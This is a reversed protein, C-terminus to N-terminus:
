INDPSINKVAIAQTILLNKKLMDNHPPVIFTINAYEERSNEKFLIFVVKQLHNTPTRYSFGIDYINSFGAKFYESSVSFPHGDDGDKAYFHLEGNFSYNFSFLLRGNAFFNSYDYSINENDSNQSAESDFRIIYEDPNKPPDLELAIGAELFNLPLQPSIYTVTTNNITNTPALLTEPKPFDGEGLSFDGVFYKFKTSFKLFVVVLVAIIATAVAYEFLNKGSVLILISEFVWIFLSIYLLKKLNSILDVAEAQENLFSSYNQKYVYFAEQLNAFRQTLNVYQSQTNSTNILSALMNTLEELKSNNKYKINLSVLGVGVLIATAISSLFAIVNTIM